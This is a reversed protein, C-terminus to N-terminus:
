KPLQKEGPPRIHSPINESMGSGRSDNVLKLYRPRPRSMRNDVLTRASVVVIANDTCNHSESLQGIM